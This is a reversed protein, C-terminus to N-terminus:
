NDKDTMRPTVGSVSRGVATMAALLHSGGLAPDNTYVSTTCM